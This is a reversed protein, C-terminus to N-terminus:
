ILAIGASVAAGVATTALEKGFSPKQPAEQQFSQQQRRQGALRYANVYGDNKTKAVQYASELDDQDQLDDSFRTDGFAKSAGGPSFPDFM